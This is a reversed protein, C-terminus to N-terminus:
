LCAVGSWSNDSLDSVVGFCLCCWCFHRGDELLSNSTDLLLGTKSLGSTNKGNPVDEGIGGIVEIEFLPIPHAHFVSSFLASLAQCLHYREHVRFPCREPQPAQQTLM